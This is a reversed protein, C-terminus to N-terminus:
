VKTAGRNETLMSYDAGLSQDIHILPLREITFLAELPTQFEPLIAEKLNSGSSSFL